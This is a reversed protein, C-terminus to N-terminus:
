RIRNFFSVTKKILNEHLTRKFSISEGSIKQNFYVSLDHPESYSYDNEKMYKELEVRLKELNEFEVRNKYSGKNESYLKFLKERYESSLRRKHIMAHYLLSYFHDIPSPVFILEKSKVRNKLINEEWKVDYYGDGVYGIDFPVLEDSIITQYQVRYKMRFVKKANIIWVTDILNNTLIDIDGHSDSSHSEQLYEYNRLVVYEVTNNLVYFLQEINKWGNAGVLDQKFQTTEGNWEVTINRRYDQCNCGLLLTLDHDAEIKSNTCHIKHGGGTWERYKTKLDFTKVNVIELGSSTKREMYRPSEDEVVVLMFPGKGCHKEKHSGSPLKRGYFRSLNESFKDSSWVVKYRGLIKFTEQLDDIIEDEKNRAHEWIIFLNIEKNLMGDDM